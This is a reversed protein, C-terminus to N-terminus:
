ANRLEEIGAWCDNVSWDHGTGTVVLSCNNEVGASKFIEEVTEFAKDVGDLPFIADAAGTIIAVKRPAILCALDQMDFWEYAGPIFNCSCHYVSMISDKYNCFGGCPAALDIREDYCAAYFTATAGGSLGTCTIDDLDIKSTINSLVSDSLADIAKSVDWARGGLLTRGLIFEQQAAFECMSAGEPVSEAHREGRGRLEVALAAYGREVAQLAYAYTGNVPETDNGKLGVSTKINTSHGQLVIALPYSAESTKPILLYCPVTAGYESNFVFRYRTYGDMEVTEEINVDLPCANKEIKDIGLKEIFKERVQEKWEDYDNDASYSLKPTMRGYLTDYILNGDVKQEVDGTAPALTLEDGEDSGCAVLSLSMVLALLLLLFRKLTKM